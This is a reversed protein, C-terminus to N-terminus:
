KKILNRHLDAHCSRCLWIVSLPNNYDEHHGEVKLNGCECKTPKSIEGRRVAKNLEVRADQKYQFKATSKRIALNTRERGKDTARYRRVRATNCERCIKYENNKQLNRKNKKCLCCINKTYLFPEM